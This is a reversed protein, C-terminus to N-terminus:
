RFSEVYARYAKSFALGWTEDHSLQHFEREDIGGQKGYEDIICNWALAHAWEHILVDVANQETLFHSLLVVFRKPRGICQGLTTPPLYSARVIVPRAPPCKDRLQALVRPFFKWAERSKLTAVRTPIKLPAHFDDGFLSVDRRYCCIVTARPTTPHAM